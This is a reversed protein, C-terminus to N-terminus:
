HDEKASWIVAPPLNWKVFTDSLWAPLIGLLVRVAEREARSFRSVAAVWIHEDFRRKGIFWLARLTKGMVTEDFNMKRAGARKLHVKVKGAYFSSSSGSIWFFVENLVPKAPLLKLKEAPTSGHEVIKKCFAECKKKAIDWISVSRIDTDFRAFIGRALRMLLGCAVLRHVASDVTARKGYILLERTSILTDRKKRAIHRRILSITALRTM